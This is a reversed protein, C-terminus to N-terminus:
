SHDTSKSNEIATFVDAPTVLDLDLKLFMVTEPTSASMSKRWYGVTSKVTSFFREVRCCAKAETKKLRRQLRRTHTLEASIRHLLKREGRSLTSDMGAQVKALGCEFEPCEVIDDSTLYREMNDYIDLVIDRATAVTMDHRLLNGTIVDFAIMEDLLASINREEGASPILDVFPIRRIDDPQADAPLDRDVECDDRFLHLYPRFDIFRQLM